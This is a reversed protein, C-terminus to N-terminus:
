LGSCGTHSHGLLGSRAPCESHETVEYLAANLTQCHRHIRRAALAIEDLMVKLHLQMVTAAHNLQATEGTGSLNIAGQLDGEAIRNLRRISANLPNVIGRIFLHGVAAVMLLGAIIGFLAFSRIRANRELTQTFEQQAADALSQRLAQAALSASPPSLNSTTCGRM